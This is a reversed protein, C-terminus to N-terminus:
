MFCEQHWFAWTNGEHSGAQTPHNRAWSWCGEPEVAHSGRGCSQVERSASWCNGRVTAVYFHVSM